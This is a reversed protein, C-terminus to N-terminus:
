ASIAFSAIRRAEFLSGRFVSEHLAVPYLGVTAALCAAAWLERSSMGSSLVDISTSFIRLRVSSSSFLLLGLGGLLEEAQAELLAEAVGVADLFQARQLLVDRADLRDCTLARQGRLRVPPSRLAPWSSGSLSFPSVWPLSVSIVLLVAAAGASCVACRLSFTPMTIEVLISFVMTTPDLHALRVGLVLADHLRVLLEVRM